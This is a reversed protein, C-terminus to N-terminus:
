RKGFPIRFQAAAVGAAGLLFAVVIIGVSLFFARQLDNTLMAQRESIARVKDTRYEALAKRTGLMVERLKDDDIAKALIQARDPGVGRFRQWLAMHADVLARLKHVQAAEGPDSAALAEISTMALATRLRETLQYKLFRPNGTLAYSRVTLQEGVVGAEAESVGLLIQQNKQIWEVNSRVSSINVGLLMTASFLLVAAGFLVPLGLERLIHSRRENGTTPYVDMANM